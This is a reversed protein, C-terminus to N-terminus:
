SAEKRVTIGTSQLLISRSLRGTLSDEPMNLNCGNAARECLSMCVCVCVGSARVWIYM